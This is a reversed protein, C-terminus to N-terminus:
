RIGNNIASVIDRPGVFNCDKFRCQFIKDIGIDTLRRCMLCCKTTYFETRLVLYTNFKAATAEM